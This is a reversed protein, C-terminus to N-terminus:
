ACNNIVIQISVVYFLLNIVDIYVFHVVTPKLRNFKKVLPLVYHFIYIM